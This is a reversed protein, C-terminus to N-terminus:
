KSITISGSKVTTVGGGGGGGGLAVGIMNQTEERNIRNLLSVRISTLFDWDTSVRKRCVVEGGGGTVFVHYNGKEASDWGMDVLDSAFDIVEVDEALGESNILSLVDTILMEEVYGPSSFIKKLLHYDGESIDMQKWPKMFSFEVPTQPQKIRYKESSVLDSTTITSGGDFKKSESSDTNLWDRQWFKM